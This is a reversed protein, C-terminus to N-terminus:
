LKERLQAIATGYTVTQGPQVQLAAIAGPAFVLVVTSGLEFTGLEQGKALIKPPAYTRCHSKQGSRQTRFGPDYALTIRGVLTAGVKVVAVEGHAATDLFTVLRENRAYLSKVESLAEPFVPMLRGPVVRSRRVCGAVPAHIRHYNHPALYLTVFAGGEYPAADVSSDLLEALSYARGKVQLLCGDHVTGCTGVTGDVPSVVTGVAPDIPRVGPRLTRVFLEELNAFDDMGLAAERLDIGVGTAFAKKLWDVAFRPQKYRALTGWLQSLRSQPLCSVLKVLLKRDM